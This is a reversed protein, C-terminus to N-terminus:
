FRCLLFFVGVYEGDVMVVVSVGLMSGDAKGEVVVVVDNDGVLSLLLLM